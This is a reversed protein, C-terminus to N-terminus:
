NFIAISIIFNLCRAERGWLIIRQLILRRLFLTRLCYFDILPLILSIHIYLNLCPQKIHVLVPAQLSTLRSCTLLIEVARVKPRQSPASNSLATWDLRFRVTVDNSSSLQIKSGFEHDQSVELIAERQHFRCSHYQFGRLILERLWQLM